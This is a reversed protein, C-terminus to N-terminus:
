VKPKDPDCVVKSLLSVLDSTSKEGDEGNGDQGEEAPNESVQGMGLLQGTLKELQELQDDSLKSWDVPNGEACKECLLQGAPSMKRSPGPLPTRLDADVIERWACGLRASRRNSTTILLNGCNRCRLLLAYEQLLKIRQIM